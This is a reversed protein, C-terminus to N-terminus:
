FGHASLCGFFGFSLGLGSGKEVEGVLNEVALVLSAIRQLGLWCLPFLVFQAQYFEFKFLLVGLEFEFLLLVFGQLLLQFCEFAFGLSVEFPLELLVLASHLEQLVLILFQFAIDLLLVVHQEFQFVLEILHHLSPLNIDRNEQGPIM